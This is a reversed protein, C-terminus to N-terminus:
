SCQYQFISLVMIDFQFIEIIIFEGQIVRNLIGPLICRLFTLFENSVQLQCLAVSLNVISDLIALFSHDLHHIRPECPGIFRIIKAKKDFYQILKFLLDM